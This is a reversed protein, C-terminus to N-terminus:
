WKPFAFSVLPICHYNDATLPFQLAYFFGTVKAPVPSIQAFTAAVFM